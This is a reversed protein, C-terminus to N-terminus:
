PREGPGTTQEEQNSPTVLARASLREIHQHNAAVRLALREVERAHRAKRQAAWKVREIQDKTKGRVVGKRHHSRPM